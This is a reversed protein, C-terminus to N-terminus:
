YIVTLVAVVVMDVMVDGVMVVAAVETDEEAMDVVGVDEMDVVGEVEEMVEVVDEEGAEKVHDLKTSRSRSVM